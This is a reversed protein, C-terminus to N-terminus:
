RPHKRAAKGGQLAHDIVRNETVEDASDVEEEGLDAHGWLLQAESLVHLILHSMIGTVAPICLGFGGIYTPLTSVALPLGRWIQNIEQKKINISHTQHTQGAGQQDSCVHHLQFIRFGAGLPLDAGQVFNILHEHEKPLDLSRQQLRFYGPSM